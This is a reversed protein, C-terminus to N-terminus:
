AASEMGICSFFVQELDTRCPRLELLGYGHEMLSRALADASAEKRLRIRLADKGCPEATEVPPLALVSSLVPPPRLRVQVDRAAAAQLRLDAEHLQRGQHLIIVRSCSAQVEHLAHSSLIVGANEAISRILGRLERIQVPDLGDAPEDLIVLDPQHILAQAIGARQQYGKSLRGLLRQGVHTLGCQAKVRAMAETLEGTPMRRLRGAFALYEDVRMDPYLPAREPLYGLRAKAQRPSRQMDIGSLLVRGSSPALTGSLIRLATTKGAGNPGLLGLVEGRRLYFRLGHLVPKRGFRRTIQDVTLLMSM